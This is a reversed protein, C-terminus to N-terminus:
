YSHFKNVFVPNIEVFVELFFVDQLHDQTEIAIRGCKRSVCNYHSQKGCIVDIRVFLRGDDMDQWDTIKPYVRYPVEEPLHQLLGARISDMIIQKPSADTAVEDHYQWAGPKAHLLMYRKIIDLGIGERASVVFIDQFHPWGRYHRMKNMLSTENKMIRRELDVINKLDLEDFNTPLKETVRPLRMPAIPIQEPEFPVGSVQGATLQHILIPLHTKKKYKDIKNLVLITPVHKNKLMTLLIEPQLYGSKLRRSTLDALVIGIDANAFSHAPLAHRNEPLGLRKAKSAGIIGPTDQFIIQTDGVTTIANTNNTTTDVKESTAMLKKGLVANVFTSKGANPMGVVSVKLVKANLPQNPTKLMLTHHEARSSTAPLFNPAPISNESSTVTSQNAVLSMLTDGDVINEGPSSSYAASIIRLKTWYKVCCLVKTRIGLGM